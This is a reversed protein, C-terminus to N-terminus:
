SSFEARIVTKCYKELKGRDKVFYINTINDYSKKSGPHSSRSHMIACALAILSTPLMIKGDKM